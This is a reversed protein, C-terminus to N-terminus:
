DKSGESRHALGKWFRNDNVPFVGESFSRIDEITYFAKPNVRRINDVIKARDKRDFISFLIHVKGTAGHGDIMTVGYGSTKFYDMLAGIDNKTIIRIVEKGMALREELIMGVYNGTAFGGAFAFYYTVNTMNIIVQRVALLWILVEMFGLIPALIRNGRSILIIRITGISVDCVRALFIGLPVIVWNFVPTHTFAEINM